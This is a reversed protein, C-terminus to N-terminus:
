KSYDLSFSYSKSYDEQICINLTKDVLDYVSSDISKWDWLREDKPDYGEKIIELATDKDQLGYHIADLYEM